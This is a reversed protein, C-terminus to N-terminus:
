EGDRVLICLGLLEAVSADTEARISIKSYEYAPSQAMKQMSALLTETNSARFIVGASTKSSLCIRTLGLPVERHKVRELRTVQLADADVTGYQNLLTNIAYLDQVKAAVPFSATWKEKVPALTRYTTQWERFGNLLKFQQEAKANMTQYGQFGQYAAMAAFVVGCLTALPSTKRNLM